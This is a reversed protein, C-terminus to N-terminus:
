LLLTAIVVPIRFNAAQWPQRCLCSFRVAFDKATQLPRCLGEAALYGAFLDKATQSNDVSPLSSQQGCKRVASSMHVIVAFATRVAETLGNVTRKGDAPLHCLLIVDTALKVM